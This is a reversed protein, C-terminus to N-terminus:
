VEEGSKRGVRLRGGKGSKKMGATLLRELVRMGDTENASVTLGAPYTYGILCGRRGYVVSVGGMRWNPLDYDYDYDYDYDGPSIVIVLVIVILDTGAPSPDPTCFGCVWVGVCVGGASSSVRDEQPPRYRGRGRNQREVSWYDRAMLPTPTQALCQPCLKYSRPVIFQSREESRPFQNGVDM